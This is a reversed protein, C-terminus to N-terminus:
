IAIEFRAIAVAFSINNTPCAVFAFCALEKM